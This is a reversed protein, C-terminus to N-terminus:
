NRSLLDTRYFFGAVFYWLGVAFTRRAAPAIYAANPIRRYDVVAMLGREVASATNALHTIIGDFPPRDVPADILMPVSIDVPAILWELTARTEHRFLEGAGADLYNVAENSIHAVTL